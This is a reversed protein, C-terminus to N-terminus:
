AFVRWLALRRLHPSAAPLGASRPRSRTWAPWGAIAKGYDPMVQDLGILGGTVKSYDPGDGFCERDTERDRQDAVHDCGARRERTGPATCAEGLTPTRSQDLYRYVTPRSVGFEAAIQAVTFKNRGQDDLEDYMQQALKVQRTPTRAQTRRGPGHGRPPWDM